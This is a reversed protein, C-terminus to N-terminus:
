WPAPHSRALLVCWVGFFVVFAVGAVAALAPWRMGVGALLALWSAAMLRGM